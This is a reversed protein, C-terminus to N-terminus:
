QKGNGATTVFLSLIAPFTDNTHLTLLYFLPVCVFITIKQKRKTSNAKKGTKRGMAAPSRKTHTLLFAGKHGHETATAENNPPPGKGESM